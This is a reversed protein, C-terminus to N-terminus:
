RGEQAEARAATVFMQNAAAITFGSAIAFSMFDRRSLKGLGVAKQAAKLKMEFESM